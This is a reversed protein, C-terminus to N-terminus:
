KRYIKIDDSEQDIVYDIALICALAELVHENRQMNLSFSDVWLTWDKSITAIQEVADKIVYEHALFNGEIEWGLEEVVYKPKVVTFKKVITAVQVDDKFVKFTPLLSMNKEEIYCLEHNMLDYIRLKLGDQIGTNGRVEYVDNGQEDKVYFHDFASKLNEKIFLKM